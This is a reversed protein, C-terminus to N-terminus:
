GKGTSFDCNEESLSTKTEVSLLSFKHNSLTAHYHYVTNNKSTNQTQKKNKIMLSNM